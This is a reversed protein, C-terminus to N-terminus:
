DYSVATVDNEDIILRSTITEISRNFMQEIFCLFFIRSCLTVDDFTMQSELTKVNKDFYKNSFKIEFLSCHLEVPM